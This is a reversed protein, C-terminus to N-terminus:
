DFKSLMIGTTTIFGERMIPNGLNSPQIGQTTMPFITAPVVNLNVSPVAVGIAPSKRIDSANKETMKRRGLAAM